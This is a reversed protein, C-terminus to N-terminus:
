KQVATHRLISLMVTVAHRSELDDTVSLGDPHALSPMEQLALFCVYILDDILTHL